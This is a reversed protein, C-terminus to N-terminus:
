FEFIVPSAEIWDFHRSLCQTDYADRHYEPRDFRKLRMKSLLEKDFSPDMYCRRMIKYIMDTRKNRADIHDRWRYLFLTLAEVADRDPHEGLEEIAREADYPSYSGDSYTEVDLLRLVREKARGKVRQRLSKEMCVMELDERAAPDHLKDQLVTITKSDLLGKEKIRLYADRQTDGYSTQRIVSMLDKRTELLEVAAQRTDFAPDNVAISLICKLRSEPGEVPLRCVAATRVDGSADNRAIQELVALNDIRAMATMRVEANEDKQAIQELTDVHDIRAMAALRVEASEDKRAVQELTNEDTVKVAAAKRAEASESELAIKSLIKQEALKNIAKERVDALSAEFAVRGLLEQDKLREVAALATEPHESGTAVRLLLDQDELRKLAAERAYAQKAHAAADAITDPDTLRHIADEAMQNRAISRAVYAFSSQLTLRQFAEEAIKSDSDEAAIKALVSEDSVKKAALGRVVKDSHTTALQVITKPDNIKELMAVKLDFHGYRLIENVSVPNNPDNLAAIAFARNEDSGALAIIAQTRVAKDRQETLLQLYHEGQRADAESKKVSSRYQPDNQYKDCWSRCDSVRRILWGAAAMRVREAPAERAVQFLKGMQANEYFKQVQALAKKEDSDKWAPTFLGM